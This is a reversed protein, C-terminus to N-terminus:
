ARRRRLGRAVTEVVTLAKDAVVLLGVFVARKAPGMEHESGARLRV